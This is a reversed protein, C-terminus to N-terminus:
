NKNFFNYLIGKGRHPSPTLAFIFGGELGSGGHSAKSISVPKGEFWTLSMLELISNTIFAEEVGILAKLEV